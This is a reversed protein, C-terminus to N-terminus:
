EEPLLVSVIDTQAAYDTIGKGKNPEFHSYVADAIITAVLCICVARKVKVPIKGAIDDILPAFLYICAMGLFGFVVLGELCIRGNINMFYGHYDWYRLDHYKDYYWSTVYEFIGSAIVITMFTEAPRDYLKRLLLM